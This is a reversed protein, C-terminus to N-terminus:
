SIQPPHDIGQPYPDPSAERTVRHAPQSVESPEAVATVVVSAYSVTKHCLCQCDDSSHKVPQQNSNSQEMKQPARDDCTAFLQHSYGGSILLSLVFLLIRNRLFSVPLNNILPVLAATLKPLRIM